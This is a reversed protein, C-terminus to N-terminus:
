SWENWKIMWAKLWTVQTCCSCMSKVIRLKAGSAFTVIWSHHLVALLERTSGCLLAKWLANLFFRWEPQQLPLFYLSLGHTFADPSLAFTSFSLNTGSFLLCRSEKLWWSSFSKQSYVVPIRGSNCTLFYMRSHLCFGWRLGCRHYYQVYSHKKIKSNFSMCVFRRLVRLIDLCTKIKSYFNSLIYLKLGCCADFDVDIWKPFVSM